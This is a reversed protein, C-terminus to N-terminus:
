LASHMGEKPRVRALASIVCRPPPSGPVFPRGDTGRWSGPARQSRRLLQADVQQEGAMLGRGCGDQAQQQAQLALGAHQLVQAGLLGAHHRRVRPPGREARRGHTLAAARVPVCAHPGPPARRAGGRPWPSGARRSRRVSPPAVRPRALAPPPATRRLRRPARATRHAHACPQPTVSPRASGMLSASAGAAASPSGASWGSCGPFQFGSRHAARARDSHGERSTHPLRAGGAAETTLQVARGALSGQTHVRGAHLHSCGAAWSSTASGGPASDLGSLWRGGLM